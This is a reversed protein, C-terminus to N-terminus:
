GGYSKTVATIAGITDIASVIYIAGTGSTTGPATDLVDIFTNTGAAYDTGGSLVNVADISGNSYFGDSIARQIPIYQANM